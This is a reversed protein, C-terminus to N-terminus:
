IHILSLDEVGMSKLLRLEKESLYRYFIFGLIYDKYQSADINARLTNASEWLTAALEQKNM